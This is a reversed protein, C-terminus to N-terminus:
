NGHVNDEITQLRQLLEDKAYFKFLTVPKGDDAQKIDTPPNYPPFV